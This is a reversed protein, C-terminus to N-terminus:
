EFYRQHLKKGQYNDAITTTKGSKEKRVVRRKGHQCSVLRGQQDIFNGNNYDSKEKFISVVSDSNLCYMKDQPVDSWILQNKEFDWAPGEAWQTGQYKIELSSDHEILDWYKESNAILNPHNVNEM